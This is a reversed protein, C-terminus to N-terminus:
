PRRGFDAALFNGLLEAGCESAVSEPHFQVGELPLTRHRLAMCLGQDQGAAVWATLELAAPPERDALALSHYRAALFGSELGRLVGQGRHAIASTEGHVARPAPAVRGGFALALAQHGLCVGLIPWRGSRLLDLALVAREPPGPGPGLLIREPALAAVAALSLRQAREVRLEAGLSWLAQALNYTFSDQHDILLLV